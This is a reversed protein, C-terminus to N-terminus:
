YENRYKEFLNDPEPTLGRVKAIPIYARYSKLTRHRLFKHKTNHEIKGIYYILSICLLHVCSSVFVFTKLEIWNEEDNIKKTM